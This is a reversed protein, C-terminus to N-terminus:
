ILFVTRNGEFATGSAPLHTCRPSGPAPPLSTCGTDLSPLTEALQTRTSRPRLTRKMRLINAFARGCRELLTGYLDWSQRNAARPQLHSRPLSPRASATRRREARTSGGRLGLGPGRENEGPSFGRSGAAALGSRSSPRPLPPAKAQSPSSPPAPVPFPRTRPRPLPAPGPRTVRPAPWHPARGFGLRRRALLGTPETDADEGGLLGARPGM